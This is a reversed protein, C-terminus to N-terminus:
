PSHYTDSIIHGFSMGNLPYPIMGWLFTLFTCDPISTCRLSFSWAVSIPFADNTMPSGLYDVGLTTIQITAKFLLIPGLFYNRIDSAM